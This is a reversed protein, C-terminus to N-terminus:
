LCGQFTEFGQLVPESGQNPNESDQLLTEFGQSLTEFGQLLSEFAQLLTGFCHVVIEFGHWMTKLGQLLTEFGPLLIEFGRLLTHQLTRIYHEGVSHLTWAHTRFVQDINTSLKEIAADLEGKKAETKALEEDCYAKILSCSVLM